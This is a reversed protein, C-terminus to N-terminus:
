DKKLRKISESAETLWPSFPFKEVIVQYNKIANGKEGISEYIRAIELYCLDRIGCEESRSALEFSEIAKSTDGVRLYAYGMKHYVLPLLWTVKHYRDIFVRYSKIANDFDGMKYYSNGVGFQALPASKTRPYKTVVQNYLELAKNYKTDQYYEVSADYMLAEAKKNIYINAYISGAITLVVMFISASAIIFFRRREQIFVLM